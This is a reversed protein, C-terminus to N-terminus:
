GNKAGRQPSAVVTVEIKGDFGFESYEVKVEVGKEAAKEAAKQIMDLVHARANIASM